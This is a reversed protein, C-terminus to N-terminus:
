SSLFIGFGNAATVVACGALELAAALMLRSDPDNEVVL